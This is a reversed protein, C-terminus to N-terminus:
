TYKDGSLESRKCTPRVDVCRLTTDLFDNGDRSHRGTYSRRLPQTMSPAFLAAVQLSQMASTVVQTSSPAGAHAAQSDLVLQGASSIAMNSATTAIHKAMDAARAAIVAREANERTSDIWHQLETDGVGTNVDFAQAPSTPEFDFSM